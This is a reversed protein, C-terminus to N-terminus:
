LRPAPRAKAAQNAAVLMAARPHAFIRCAGNDAWIELNVVRRPQIDEACLYERGAVADIRREGHPRHAVARGLPKRCTHAAVFDLSHAVAFSSLSAALSRVHASQGKMTRWIHLSAIFISLM